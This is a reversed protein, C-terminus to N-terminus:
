WHYDSSKIRFRWGLCNPDIQILAKWFSSLYLEVLFKILSLMMSILHLKKLILQFILPRHSSVTNKCLDFLAKSVSNQLLFDVNDIYIKLKEQANQEPKEDEILLVEKLKNKIKWLTFCLFRNELYKSPSSQNIESHTSTPAAILYTPSKSLNPNLSFIHNKTKIWVSHKTYNIWFEALHQMM